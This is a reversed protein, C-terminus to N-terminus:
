RYSKRKKEVSLDILKLKEIDENLKFNKATLDEVQRLLHQKEAELVTLNRKNKERLAACNKALTLKEQLLQLWLSNELKTTGEPLLEVFTRLAAIAKNEDRLPNETLLYLLALRHQAEAQAPPSHDLLSIKRELSAIAEPYDAPQLRFLDVDEVKEPSASPPQALRFLSPTCGNVFLLTLCFAFILSSRSIM